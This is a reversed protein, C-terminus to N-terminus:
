AHGVVPCVAGEPANGVTPHPHVKDMHHKLSANTVPCVEAGEEILPHDPPLITSVPGVIPCIGEDMKKNQPSNISAKIAPCAESGLNTTNTSITPHKHLLHHHDTTAKTIPCVLGPTDMDFDPHSPPLITNTTGVVPCIRQATTAMIIYSTAFCYRNPPRSTATTAAPPTPISSIVFYGKFLPFAILIFRSLLVSGTASPSARSPTSPAVNCHTIAAM